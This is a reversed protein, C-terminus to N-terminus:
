IDDQVSKISNAVIASFEARTRKQWPYVMSYVFAFFQTFTPPIVETLEKWTKGLLMQQMKCSLYWKLAHHFRSALHVLEEEPVLPITNEISRLETITMDKYEKPFPTKTGPGDNKIASHAALKKQLWRVFYAMIASVVVIIIILPWWNPGVITQIDHIDTM